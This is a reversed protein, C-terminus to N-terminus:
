LALAPAVRKGCVQEARGWVNELVERVVAYRPEPGPPPTGQPRPLADGLLKIAHKRDYGYQECLEDLVRSKGERNRRAYREPLRQLQENRDLIKSMKM